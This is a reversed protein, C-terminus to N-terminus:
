RGGGAVAPPRYGRLIREGLLGAAPPVFLTVAWRIATLRPGLFALELPIRAVDWVIKASVYAMITGMGAGARYLALALPYFVYPGGPTLAGAAMGLLVGRLGAEGGLWKKIASAPVLVRFLGGVAFAFLVLLAAARLTAMGSALGSWALAWGGQLYALVALGVTILALLWEVAGM